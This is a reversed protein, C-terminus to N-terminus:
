PGVNSFAGLGRTVDAAAKHLRRLEIECQLWRIVLVPPRGEDSLWRHITDNGFGIERALPLKWRETGMYAIALNEFLATARANDMSEIEQITNM